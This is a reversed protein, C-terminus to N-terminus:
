APEPTVNRWYNLVDALMQDFDVRPRWGTAEQLRVPSGRMDAVDTPRVRFPDVHLELDVGALALLRRALDDVAISTGRCVNYAQGPAGREM